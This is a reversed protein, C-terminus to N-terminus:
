RTFVVTVIVSSHQHVAVHCPVCLALMHQWDYRDPHGHSLMHHAESSARVGCRHCLPHADLYLGNRKQRSNPKATRPKARWPQTNSM